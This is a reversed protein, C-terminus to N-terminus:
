QDGRLASTYLVILGALACSMLLVIISLGIEVVTWRHKRPKTTKEMIDMQSESKGMRPATSYLILTNISLTYMQACHLLHLCGCTFCRICETNKNTWTRLDYHNEIHVCRRWTNTLVKPNLLLSQLTWGFLSHNNWDYRYMMKIRRLSKIWKWTLQRNSQSPWSKWQMFLVDQYRNKTEVLIFAM